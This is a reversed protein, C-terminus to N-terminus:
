YKWSHIPFQSTCTKRADFAKRVHPLLNRPEGTENEVFHPVESTLWEHELMQAATPRKEPDVTLCTSVFNRATESVISWYEDTLVTNLPIRDSSSRLLSMGPEFKYDGAIIAEM